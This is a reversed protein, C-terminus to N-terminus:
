QGPQDRDTTTRPDIRTDGTHVILVDAGVRRAVAQPVSGLIRGTVTNLGVNGVVLLQAGLATVATDLVAVANGQVALTDVWGAGASRARVAADGLMAEAPASGLVQYVDDRLADAAKRIDNNSAPQYATVIVLRAASAGAIAGARDLARLSTDSGDTGVVVTTYCGM